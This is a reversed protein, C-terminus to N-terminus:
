TCSRGQARSSCTRYITNLLSSGFQQGVTATASAVGADQSAVGFTGTNIVPAIMMGLGVAALIIPGLVGTAYGTHPGLQALWAAGGAAALMGLAILPRPGFRPMLVITALNPAVVLGGSIPLFAVGTV